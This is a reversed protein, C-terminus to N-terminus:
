MYQCQLWMRATLLRSGGPLGHWLFNNVDRSVNVGCWYCNGYWFGGGFYSACNSNKSQDNDRDYTSFMLGNSYGLADDGATGSYGAVQLKYNYAEPLVVFTSYEPYFWKGTGRQQLDFKLKYKNQTTLRSLMENGIWYNGKPDRFGRKYEEWSRNVGTLYFFHEQILLPACSGICLM